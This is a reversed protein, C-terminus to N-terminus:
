LFIIAAKNMTAGFQTAKGKELPDDWSLSQVWIEWMTPSNKVLQTMLSAWFYSMYGCVPFGIFM